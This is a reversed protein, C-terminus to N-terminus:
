STRVGENAVLQSNNPRVPLPFDLLIFPPIKPKNSLGLFASTDGLPPAVISRLCKTTPVNL